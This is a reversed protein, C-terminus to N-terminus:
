PTNTKAAPGAEGPSAFDSSYRECQSLPRAGALVAISENDLKAVNDAARRCGEDFLDPMYRMMIATQALLELNTKTKSM